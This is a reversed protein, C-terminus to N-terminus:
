SVIVPDLLLQLFLFVQVQLEALLKALCAALLM